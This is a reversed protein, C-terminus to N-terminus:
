SGSYERRWYGREDKHLGADIMEQESMCRRDTMDGVRHKDFAIEGGFYHGCVSCKCYRSGHPLMSDAYKSSM